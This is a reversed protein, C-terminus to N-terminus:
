IKIIIKTIINDHFYGLLHAHNDMIIFDIIKVGYKKKYKAWLQLLFNKVVAKDFFFQRNHYRFFVHSFSKNMIIYRRAYM